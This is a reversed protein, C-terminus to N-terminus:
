AEIQCRSDNGAEKAKRVAPRVEVDSKGRAPSLKKGPPCCAPRLLPLDVSRRQPRFRRGAWEAATRHGMKGESAGRVSRPNYLRRSDRSKQSRRLAKEERSWCPPHPHGLSRSNQTSTSSAPRNELRTSGM